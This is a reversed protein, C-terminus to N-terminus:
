KKKKKPIQSGVGFISSQGVPPADRLEEEQEENYQVGIARIKDIIGSFQKRWRVKDDKSPRTEIDKPIYVNDTPKWYDEPIPFAPLGDKLRQTIRELAEETFSICSITTKFKSHKQAEQILPWIEDCVSCGDDRKVGEVWTKSKEHLHWEPLAPMASIETEKKEISKKFQASFAELEERSFDSM